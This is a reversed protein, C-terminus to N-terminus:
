LDKSSGNAQELVARENPLKRELELQESKKKYNRLANLNHDDDETEKATASTIKKGTAFEMHLKEADRLCAGLSHGTRVYFRDNHTLFFKVVEIADAEGLRKVLNVAQSNTKSNRKPEVKYRAKFSESYAEWVKVSSAKGNPLPTLDKKIKEDDLGEFEPEAEFGGLPTRPIERRKKDLRNKAHSNCTSHNIITQNEVLKFVALDFYDARLRCRAHVYGTDLTIRASRQENCESLIFIFALMDIPSFNVFDRHGFLRSYLKFWQPNKIRPDPNNYQDWKVVELEYIM